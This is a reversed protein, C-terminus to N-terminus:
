RGSVGADGTASQRTGITRHSDRLMRKNEVIDEFQLQYSITELGSMFRVPRSPIALSRRLAALM